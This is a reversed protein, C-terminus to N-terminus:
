HWGLFTMLEEAVVEVALDNILVLNEVGVGQSTAAQRLDDRRGSATDAALRRDIDALPVELRAVRLPLGSKGCSSVFARHLWRM